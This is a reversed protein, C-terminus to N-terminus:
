LYVISFPLQIIYWNFTGHLKLIANIKLDIAILGYSFCSATKVMSRRAELHRQLFALHDAAGSACAVTRTQVGLARLTQAIAQLYSIRIAIGAIQSGSPTFLSITKPLSWRSTPIFSTHHAGQGIGIIPIAKAARKPWLPYGQQQHLCEQSTAIDLFDMHTWCGVIVLWM